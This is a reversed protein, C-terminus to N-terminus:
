GKKECIVYFNDEDKNSVSSRYANLITLGRRFTGKNSKPHLLGVYLLSDQDTCIRTGDKCTTSLLKLTNDIAADLKDSPFLTFMETSYPTTTNPSGFWEFNKHSATEISVNLYGGTWFEESISHHDGDKILANEVETLKTVTDITVLRYSQSECERKAEEITALGDYILFRGASEVKKGITGNAKGLRTNGETKRSEPQVAYYIYVGGICCLILAFLITM